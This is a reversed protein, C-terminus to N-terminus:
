CRESSIHQEYRAPRQGLDAPKGTRRKSGTGGSLEANVGPSLIAVGTFSGTPLPIADLQSKDLVYGNTTDVANVLPTEQVTVTTSVEGVELVANVTVTRNAQVLISPVKQTKFSDHSFTLTYSGIPLNVFTYTGDGSTTQTRTLQTQDGVITVTADPLIGSSADEVEGTIGGLTQQARSSPALAFAACFFVGIILASLRHSKFM